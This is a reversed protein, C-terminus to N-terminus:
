DQHLHDIMLVRVCVCGAPQRLGSRDSSLRRASCYLFVGGSEPLQDCSDIPKSSWLPVIPTCTAARMGPPTVM